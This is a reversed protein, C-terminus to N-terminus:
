FEPDFLVEGAAAHAWVTYGPNFCRMPEGTVATAASGTSREALSGGRAEEQRL